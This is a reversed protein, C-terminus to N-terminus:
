TSITANLIATIGILKTILTMITSSNRFSTSITMRPLISAISMASDRLDISYAVKGTGM